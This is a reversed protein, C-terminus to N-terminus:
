AIVKSRRIGVKCLVAIRRRERHGKVSPLDAELSQQSKHWKQPM